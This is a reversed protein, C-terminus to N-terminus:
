IQSYSAPSLIFNTVNTVISEFDFKSSHTLKKWEPSAGFAQWLKDREALGHFALLYTLNPMRSGVLTDGYFVPWFGAQRFVDFEGSHFMEIKRRHDRESPSEYTRLEFARPERGATMPPLQLKPRGHFALMLSSEIQLYAPNAAPASLFSAGNKVYEPDAELRADLNALLELSASPLLVYLAPTQPGLVLNFVGVPTIGLRNVAPVFVDRFFQNTIKVQPGSRLNYRRLLYYERGSNSDAEKGAPLAPAAVLASAALSSALFKRRHM